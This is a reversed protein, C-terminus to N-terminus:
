AQRDSHSLSLQAPHAPRAPPRGRNFRPSAVPFYEDDLFKEGELKPWDGNGYRIAMDVEDRGFDVFAISTHVNMAIEPHAAMFRAFRPCLCRAACSSCVR